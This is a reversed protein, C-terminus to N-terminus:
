GIDGERNIQLNGITTKEYNFETLINSVDYRVDDMTRLPVRYYEVIDHVDVAFTVNCTVHYKGSDTVDHLLEDSVKDIIEDAYKEHDGVDLSGYPSDEVLEDDEYDIADSSYESDLEVQLNNDGNTTVNFIGNVTCDFYVTVPAVEKSDFEDESPFFACRVYRKM